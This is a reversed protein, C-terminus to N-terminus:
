ELLGRRMAIAVLHARDAAELKDFLHELHTRVTRPSIGLRHAIVANTRGDAVQRLVARERPSLACRDGRDRLRLERTVAVTGAECLAIGGHAARTVADRVEDAPRTLANVRPDDWSEIEAMRSCREIICASAASITEPASGGPV